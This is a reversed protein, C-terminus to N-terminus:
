REAPGIVFAPKHKEVCRALSHRLELVAVGSTPFDYRRRTFPNCRVRCLMAWCPLFHSSNARRPLSIAARDDRVPPKGYRRRRGCDGAALDEDQSM